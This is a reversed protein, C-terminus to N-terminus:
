SASVLRGLRSNSRSRSVVGDAQCVPVLGSHAHHERVDVSELGDIVTQAVADAVLQEFIASRNVLVTRPRYRCAEAVLEDHDCFAYGIPLLELFQGTIMSRMLAGNRTPVLSNNTVVDIPMASAASSAAFTSESMACASMAIYLAFIATAVVVLKMRRVPDVADWHAAMSFSRRPARSRSSSNNWGCGM